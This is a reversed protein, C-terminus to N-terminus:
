KIKIRVAKKGYRQKVWKDNDASVAKGYRNDPAIVLDLSWKASKDKEPTKLLLMLDVDAPRTKKVTFSGMVHAERIPIVKEIRSFIRKANKWMVRRYENALLEKPLEKKVSHQIDLYNMILRYAQLTLLDGLPASM